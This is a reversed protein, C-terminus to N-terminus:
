NLVLERSFELLKTKTEISATLPLQAVGILRRMIEVGALQNVLKRNFAEEPDYAELFACTISEPQGSLSFHAIAVSVDFEAKGYFCFEPDIIRIGDKTKLWSGPFFDGHLLTPGDELYADEGLQRVTEVYQADTKLAKAAKVLGPTIADLNIGNDSRLPFDFIHLHNLERMDRNTLTSRNDAVFNGVHLSALWSGLIGADHETMKEGSYLSTFDATEGLDQMIAIRSQVDLDLLIPTRSSVMSDNSVLGYFRAERIIRDWPADIQPYKEVWPFSQKLILRQRDTIVRLTLNMNGEGAPGISLITETDELMGRSNLYANLSEPDQSDLLIIEPFEKHLEERRNPILDSM